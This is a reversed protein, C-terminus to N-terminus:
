LAKYVRVRSFQPGRMGFKENSQRNNSAAPNRWPTSAVTEQVMIAASQTALSHIGDVM